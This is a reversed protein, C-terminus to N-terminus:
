NLEKLIKEKDVTKTKLGEEIAEGMIFDELSGSIITKFEDKNEKFLEILVEKLTEKLKDDSIIIEM